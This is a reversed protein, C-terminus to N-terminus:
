QSNGMKKYEDPSNSLDYERMSTEDIATLLVQVSRIKRETLGTKRM